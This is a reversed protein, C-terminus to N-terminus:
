SGSPMEAIEYAHKPVAGHKPLEGLDALICHLEHPDAASAFSLTLRHNTANSLETGQRLAEILGEAVCESGQKIFAPSRHFHLLFNHAVGVDTVAIFTYPLAM